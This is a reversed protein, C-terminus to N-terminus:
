RAIARAATTAREVAATAAPQELAGSALLTLHELAPPTAREGTLYKAFQYLGLLAGQALAQADGPTLGQSPAVFAATKAGAARAARSVRGGLAVLDRATLPGNPRGLLAVRKAPLRGLTHLSVSQGVKGTFREDAIAQRLAGGLATDVAAVLSDTAQDRETCTLVLLDVAAELPSSSSVQVKPM